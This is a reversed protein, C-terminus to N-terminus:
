DMVFKWPIRETKSHVFILFNAQAILYTYIGIM